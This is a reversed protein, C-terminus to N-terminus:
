GHSDEPPYHWHGFYGGSLGKPHAQIVRPLVAEFYDEENDISMASAKGVEDVCVGTYLFYCMARAVGVRAHEGVGDLGLTAFAELLEELAPEGFDRRVFEASRLAMRESITDVGTLAACFDRVSAARLFSM